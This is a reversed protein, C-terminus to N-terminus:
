EHLVQAAEGVQPINLVVACGVAPLSYLLVLQRQEYIILRARYALPNCVAHFREMTIALTIFITTSLSTHYLTHLLPVPHFM